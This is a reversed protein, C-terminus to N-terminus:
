YSFIVFYCFMLISSYLVTPSGLHDANLSSARHLGGLDGEERGTDTRQLPSKDSREGRIVWGGRCVCVCQVFEGTDV